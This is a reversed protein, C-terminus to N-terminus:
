GERMVMATTEWKSKFVIEDHEGLKIDSLDERYSLARSFSDIYAGPYVTPRSFDNPAHTKITVCWVPKPLPKEIKPTALTAGIFGLFDRRKM